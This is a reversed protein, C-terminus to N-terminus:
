VMPLIPPGTMGKPAPHIHTKYIGTNVVDTMMIATMLGFTGLPAQM